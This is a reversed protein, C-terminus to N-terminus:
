GNSQEEGAPEPGEGEGPEDGNDGESEALKAAAVLREGEALDHLRVGQTNRGIIRIDGVLMRIINGQDSILMVEDDDEVVLAAVVPGNRETTQITIVGKGGRNRLPYEDLRTRKGYGHATITLVSPTGAVAEMAVVADEEALEMGKVGGAVRGMSRVNQERFRIAKGQRTALFIEMEGDTLRAAVLRDDEALKLAIIGGPRPRSFAMLETKKVIGSETAMIVQRGESFEKVALVTNVKEGTTMNVLNVIAKGKSARGAQPIEHVKLWFLRGADTFILLYHHTSAVFLKEVFDESKTVMGRKGKGGRRQARYLSSPTRKIYGGHSITVVMEEEAIMDELDIESTQAVIETRRADGYAQALGQTEERIIQRVLGENALIEKLRAIEKIVERYESLIKEQELGTLRQLRMDLIAQAQIDSLSLQTMLQFKAETPSASGRILKIVQDLHDLAIKLGELIHAREQAKKLDFATRKLIIERRHEIFHRLIDKLTLVEPRNNVIALLNIGFTSQMATFKFLQNMVVQPVAERKLELVMRMGDRDSEDRIDSIGELKKEKVLEAIRELLRAKNVQYPLETVVIASKNGRASTEVNARARMYIVGRGTQYAEAIGARGYIFGRTPFDPGPVQRMLEKISIEPNDLLAVVAAAVEGLNHPPINTAMGVAIGSSGNVLLNPVKTPLLGPESLSGDYNDVFQVTQKDIDALFEGALKAMRVETYRMAAPADGDVSGFNGQGDVLTYRLAFDQAMRVLADYVASDGHPHYKGIVDGVVRASKKYPRNFYNKLDHMAYLIRRHVPKLGDRVEPLARGIIVSMAYDLYSRKIEEEILVDQKRADTPLM